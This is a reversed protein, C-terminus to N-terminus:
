NAPEPETRTPSADDPDQKDGPSPRPNRDAVTGLVGNVFRGSSEGGFRKALEVAENISAKVPVDSDYILEFISIRLINRDIPSLQSVPFQPAAQEIRKDIQRKSSYIGEVLHRIYDSTAPTIAEDTLTRELVDDWPHSTQDAEFLVQLALIRSQHRYTSQSLKRRRGSRRTRPLARAQRRPAEAPDQSMSNEMPRGIVRPQGANSPGAILSYPLISSYADVDTRGDAIGLLTIGSGQYSRRM